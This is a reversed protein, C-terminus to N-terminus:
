AGSDTVSVSLTTTGATTPTGTIQSGNISLGDPPLGNASFTLPAVGGTVNSALDASFVQGVTGTLNLPDSLAALPQSAPNITINVNFSIQAMIRRTMYIVFLVLVTAALMVVLVDRLTFDLIM